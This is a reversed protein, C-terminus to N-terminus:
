GENRATAAYENWKQIVFDHDYWALEDDEPENQEIFWDVFTQLQVGQAIHRSLDTGILVDRYDLVTPHPKAKGPYKEKGMQVSPYDNMLRMDSDLLLIVAMSRLFWALCIPMTEDELREVSDRICDKIKRM